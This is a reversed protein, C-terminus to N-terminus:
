ATEEPPTYVLAFQLAVCKADMEFAAGEFRAYSRENDGNSAEDHLNQMTRMLSADVGEFIQAVEPKTRCLEAVSETNWDPIGGAFMSDPLHAGVACMTPVGDVVAGRYACAGDGAMSMSPVKQKRLHAMTKDYFEQNNM